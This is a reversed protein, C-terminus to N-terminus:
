WTATQRGNNETVVDVHAVDQGFTM